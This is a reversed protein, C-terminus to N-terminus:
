IVLKHRFKIEESGKTVKNAYSDILNVIIHILPRSIPTVSKRSSVYPSFYSFWKPKLFLEEVLRFCQLSNNHIMGTDAM